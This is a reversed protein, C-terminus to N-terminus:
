KPKNNQNVLEKIKKLLFKKDAFNKVGWGKIDMENVENLHIGEIGEEKLSQSLHDHYKNLRNNDLSMIWMLIDEHKWNMYNSTDMSNLKLKSIDSRLAHITTEYEKQDDLLRSNQTQLDKIKQKLSLNENVLLDTNSKNAQRLQELEDNLHDNQEKMRANLVSIHEKQSAIITQDFVRQQEYKVLELQDNEIKKRSEELEEFTQVVNKADDGIPAFVESERRRHTRNRTRLAENQTNMETNETELRGITHHQEQIKAKLKAVVGADEADVDPKSEEKETPEEAKAHSQSKHEDVQEPSNPESMISIEDGCSYSLLSVCDHKNQMYVCMRYRIKSPTIRKFAIKLNSNNVAFTLSRTASDYYMVIVDGEDWGFNYASKNNTLCKKGSSWYSYNLTSLQTFPCVNMYKGNSNDIGIAMHGMGRANVKFVWRHKTNDSDGFAVMGYVTAGGKAGHSTKTIVRNTQDVSMSTTNFLIFHEKAHSM